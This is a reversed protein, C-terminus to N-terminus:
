LRGVLLERLAQFIIIILNHLFCHYQYYNKTVFASKFVANFSFIKPNFLYDILQCKRGFHQDTFTIIQTKLSM